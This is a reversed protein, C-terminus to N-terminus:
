SQSQIRTPNSKYKGPFPLLLFLSCIGSLRPGESRPSTPEARAPEAGLPAWCRPPPEQRTTEMRRGANSGRPTKQIKAGTQLSYLLQEQFPELGWGQAEQRLQRRAIQTMAFM